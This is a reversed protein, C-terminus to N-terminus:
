FADIARDRSSTARAPDYNQRLMRCGLLVIDALRATSSLIRLQSLHGFDRMHPSINSDLRLLLATAVAVTRAIIVSAAVKPTTRDPASGFERLM